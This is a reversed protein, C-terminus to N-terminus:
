KIRKEYEKKRQQTAEIERTPTQQTKKTFGHALMLVGTPTRWGLLRFINGGFTARVEWLGNTGAMKQLYIAPVINLSEVARLTWAVKQAQKADLSDLYLLAPCKGEITRYFEIKVSSLAIMYFLLRLCISVIRVRWAGGGKM